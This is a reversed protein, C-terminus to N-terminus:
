GKAKKWRDRMEETLPTCNGIVLEQEFEGTAEALEKADMQWYLKQRDKHSTKKM